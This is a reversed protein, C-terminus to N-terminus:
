RGITGTENSRTARISQSLRTIEAALRPLNNELWDLRVEIPQIRSPHPPDALRDHQLALDELECRDLGILKAMERTAEVVNM